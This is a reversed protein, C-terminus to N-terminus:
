LARTWHDVTFSGANCWGGQGFCDSPWLVALKEYSMSIILIITVAISSVFPYYGRPDSSSNDFCIFLM